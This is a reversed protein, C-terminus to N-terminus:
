NRVEEPELVVGRGFGGDAAGEGVGRRVLPGVELEEEGLSEEALVAGDLGGIEEVRQEGIGLGAATERRFRVQPM